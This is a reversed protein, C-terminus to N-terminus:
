EPSYRKCIERDLLACESLLWRLGTEALSSM